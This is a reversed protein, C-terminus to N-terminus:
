KAIYHQYAAEADEESLHLKRALASLEERSYNLHLANELVHNKAISALMAEITEHFGFKQAVEELFAVEEEALHEDVIALTYLLMYITPRVSETVSEAEASSVPDSELLEELQDHSLGIMDKLFQEEKDSVGDHVAALEVFLRVLIDQDYIDEIPAQALQVEYETLESRFHWEGSDEDFIFQHAVKKFAEVIAMEKEFDTFFLEEPDNEIFVNELLDRQYGFMRNVAYIASWRVADFLNRAISGATIEAEKDGLKVLKSSAEVVSGSDPARFECYMTNDEVVASAILPNIGAFNIQM